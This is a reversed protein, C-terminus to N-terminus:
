DGNLYASLFRSVPRDMAHGAYTALRNHLGVFPRNYPRTLRRLYTGDRFRYTKHIEGRNKVVSQFVAQLRDAQREAPAPPRESNRARSRRDLPRDVRFAAGHKEMIGLSGARVRNRGFGAIEGASFALRAVLGVSINMPIPM